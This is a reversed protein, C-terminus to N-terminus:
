KNEVANNYFAKVCNAVILMMGVILCVTWRPQQNAFILWDNTVIVGVTYSALLGTVYGKLLAVATRSFTQKGGRVRDNSKSKSFGERVKVPDVSIADSATINRKAATNANDLTNGKNM